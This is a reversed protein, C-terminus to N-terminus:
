SCADMNYYMQRSLTKIFMDYSMPVFEDIPITFILSEGSRRYSVVINGFRAELIIALEGNYYNREYEMFEFGSKIDHKIESLNIRAHKM